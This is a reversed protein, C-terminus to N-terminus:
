EHDHKIIVKRDVDMDRRPRDVDRKMV